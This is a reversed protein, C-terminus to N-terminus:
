GAQQLNYTTKRFWEREKQYVIFALIDDQQLILLPVGPNPSSAKCDSGPFTPNCTHAGIINKIKIGESGFRTESVHPVPHGLSDWLVLSRLWPLVLQHTLLLLQQFKARHIRLLGNLRDPWCGVIKSGYSASVVQGMKEQKQHSKDNPGVDGPEQYIQRPLPEFGLRYGTVSSQCSQCGLSTSRSRM